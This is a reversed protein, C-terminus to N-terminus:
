EEDILKKILPENRLDNLEKSDWEWNQKKYKAYHQGIGPRQGQRRAKQIRELKEEQLEKEKCAGYNIVIGNSEYVKSNDIFLNDGEAKLSSNFKSIRTIRKWPVGYFFHKRLPLKYEEGTYLAGWCMTSIQNCGKAEAKKIEEALTGDFSYYLDPDTYIVWDPNLITAFELMEKQLRGLHFSGNTSFVKWFIDHTRQLFIESGDTSMNDIYAFENVGISKLYMYSDVLYPNENYIHSISLIKM